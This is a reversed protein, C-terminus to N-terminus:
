RHLARAPAPTTANPGVAPPRDQLDQAAQTRLYTGFAGRPNWGLRTMEQEAQGLLEAAGHGATLRAIALIEKASDRIPDRARSLCIRALERGPMRPPTCSQDALGVGFAGLGAAGRQAVWDAPDIGDPLAALRVVRRRELVLAHLWRETGARGAADSDLALVIDGPALACAQAAQAASVATGNGSVAILQDSLGTKAAAADLALADM